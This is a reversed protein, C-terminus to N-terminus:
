GVVNKWGRATVAPPPPPPPLRVVVEAMKRERERELVIREREGEWGPTGLLTLQLNSDVHNRPRSESELGEAASGFAAAARLGVEQDFNLNMLESPGPSGTNGMRWPIGKYGGAGTTMPSSSESSDDSGAISQLGGTSVGTFNEQEDGRSIGLTSASGSAAGPRLKNVNSTM